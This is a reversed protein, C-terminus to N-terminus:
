RELDGGETSLLSPLLQSHWPNNVISSDVLATQIPPTTRMWTQPCSHSMKRRSSEYIINLCSDLSPQHEDSYNRHLAWTINETLPLPHCAPKEEAELLEGTEM